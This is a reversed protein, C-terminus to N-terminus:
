RTVVRRKKPLSNKRARYRRDRKRAAERRLRTEEEDRFGGCYKIFLAAKPAFAELHKAMPHGMGVLWGVLPESNRRLPERQNDDVILELARAYCRVKQPAATSDSYALEVSRTRSFQALVKEHQAWDMTKGASFNNRLLAIDRLLSRANLNGARAQRGLKSLASEGSKTLRDRARKVLNNVRLVLRLSPMRKDILQFAKWPPRLPKKRELRVLRMVSNELPLLLDSTPWFTFQKMAKALDTAGKAQPDPERCYKDLGALTRTLEEKARKGIAARYYARRVGKM